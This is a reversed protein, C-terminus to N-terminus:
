KKFLIKFYYRVAWWILLYLSDRQKKYSKNFFIAHVVIVEDRNTDEITIESGTKNESNSVRFNKFLKM